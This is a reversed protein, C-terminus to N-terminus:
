DRPLLTAIQDRALTLYLARSGIWEVAAIPILQERRTLWDGLRVVISSLAGSADEVVFAIVEGAPGDSAMVQAGGQLALEGPPIQETVLPIHKAEFEAFPDVAYFPQYDSANSRIYREDAFPELAALIERTCDLRVREHTTTAVRGIPVLHEVAPVTYDQVVIHTLRRALPEVILHTVSGGYGDTCQVQAGLPMIRQIPEANMAARAISEAREERAAAYLDRLEALQLDLTIRSALDARAALTQLASIDRWREQLEAEQSAALQQEAAARSGRLKESEGALAAREDESTARAIAERYRALVEDLRQVEAALTQNLLQRAADRRTRLAAVRVRVDAQQWDPSRSIAAYIQALEHNMADLDAAEQATTSTWAPPQERRREAQRAMFAHVADQFEQGADNSMSLHMTEGGFDAVRRAYMAAHKPTLLALLASTVPALAHQMEKLDDHYLDRSALLESAAGVAAAAAGLAAVAAPGGPAGLLGGVIAGIRGGHQSGFDGIQRIVASDDAHKALVVLDIVQLDGKRVFEHLRSAAEGATEARDFTTLFLEYTM